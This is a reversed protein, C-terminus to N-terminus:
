NDNDDTESGREASAKLSPDHVVERGRVCIGGGQHEHRSRYIYRGIRVNVNPNIPGRAVLSVGALVAQEQQDIQELQQELENVQRGTHNITNTLKTLRENRAESKPLAVIKPLILQLDDLLKRKIELQGQATQEEMHLEILDPELEIETPIFAETGYSACVVQGTARTIGGILKSNRDTLGGITVDSDSTTLCHLLQKNVEVSGGQLRAYQAFGISLRGGAKLECTLDESDFKHQDNQRQRGVVGKRVTLDGEAFVQASYVSGGITIDGTAEVRMGEEVDGRVIVSGDFEVHGTSMDVSKLNYVNDVRMGGPFDVPLGGRTAVIHNKDRSQEVGEAAIFEAPVGPEAMLEVNNVTYGHRGKTPPERHMLKHGAEVTLVERFDLLDVTGDERERPKNLQQKLTEVDSVWRGNKGNEPQKGRAIEASVQSGPEATEARQLLDAAATEDVGKIVGADALAKQLQAADIPTGAYAATITAKASMKDESQNILLQADARQALAIAALTTVSSPDEKHAAAAAILDAIGTDSLKFRGFESENFQRRVTSEKIPEADDQPSLLAEVTQEDKSLRLTVKFM